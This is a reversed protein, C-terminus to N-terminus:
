DYEVKKAKKAEAKEEKVTVEMEKLLADAREKRVEVASEIEAEKRLLIQRELENQIEQIRKELEKNVENTQDLQQQMQNIASINRLIEDAEAVDALKFLAETVAIGITDNTMRSMLVQLFQMAQARTTPLNGTSKFVVNFDGTSIDGLMTLVQKQAEKNVIEIQSMQDGGLPDAVPQSGQETQQMRAQIGTRIEVSASTNDIYRIVNEKPAYTQYFQIILRGLISNANDIRRSYMRPRQMGFSTITNTAGQTEPANSASGQMMSHVGTIYEILSIMQTVLTYFASNLANGLDKHPRGGDPLSSDAQYEMVGGPTSAATEFKKKDTISGEAAVWGGNSTAQANEVCLALFKNLAYDLDIIQHVVGYEYPNRNHTHSYVVVPYLDIPLMEKSKIFNGVKVLREIYVGPVESIVLNQIEGGVNVIPKSPREFVKSGDLLIYMTKQVKRFIEQVWIMREGTGSESLGGGPSNYHPNNLQADGGEWVGSAMRVEEETLNYIKTARKEGLPRAIFIMESDQHSRLKSHPDPYYDRWDLDEIVVNFVNQNFFYSPRIYLLGRGTTLMDKVVGEQLSTYSNTNLCAKILERYLYAHQKSTEGVPIVDPVPQTETLFAQLIEIVPLTINVSSRILNKDQIKQLQEQTFHTGTGDVDNNSVMEYETAKNIWKSMSSKYFQFYRNLDGIEKINQNSKDWLNTTEIKM